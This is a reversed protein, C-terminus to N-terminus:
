YRVLIPRRRTGRASSLVAQLYDIRAQRLTENVPQFQASHGDPDRVAVVAGTTLGTVQAARLKDLEAQFAAREDDTM